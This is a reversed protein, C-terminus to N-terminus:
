KMRKKIIRIIKNKARRIVNPKPYRYKQVLKDLPYEDLEALFRKRNKNEKASYLIAPNGPLADELKKDVFTINDENSKLFKDGKITNSFLLSVGKEVDQVDDPNIGWFDALTFDSGVRPIKKFKCDYCTDRCTLDNHYALIRLDESRSGFYDQGNEFVIYQGFRNWGNRKEKSRLYKIKSNYKNELYEVYKEQVKPTTTGRCLFDGILLNDYEKGLYAVLAAVHCPASVFLVMEGQDLLTKTKKYIDETDSQFYKSTILQSLDEMKNIIVQKAGKYGNTYVCGVVYGGNELVKKALEYFIGGSTSALRIEENKSWAAYVKPAITRCKIENINPCKKVCLGCRICKDYDVQPYWFGNIETKYSIAQKPCLDKCMKCGTCKNLNERDIM